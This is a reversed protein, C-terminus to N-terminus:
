YWICNDFLLWKVKADNIDVYAQGWCSSPPTGGNPLVRKTLFKKAHSDAFVLVTGVSHRAGLSTTSGLPNGAGDLGCAGAADTNGALYGRCADNRSPDLPDVPVGDGLVVCTAPSRLQKFTVDIASNPLRYWGYINVNYGISNKKRTGWTSGYVTGAAGPCGHVGKDKVYRNIIGIWIPSADVPTGAWTPYYARVPFKEAYDDSYMIIAKGLQAQNSTCSTAMAAERARAFVPFLIAALIAIIAIVVLLEILTFGRRTLRM